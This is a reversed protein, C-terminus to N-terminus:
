SYTTKGAKQYSCFKTFNIFITSKCDIAYFVQMPFQAFLMPLGTVRIGCSSVRPLMM